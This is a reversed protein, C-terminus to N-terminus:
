VFKVEKLRVITVSNTVNGEYLEALAVSGIGERLIEGVTRDDCGQYRRVILANIREFKRSNWEIHASRLMALYAQGSNEEDGDGGSERDDPFEVDAMPAVTVANAARDLLELQMLTKGGGGATESEGATYRRAIIANIRDYTFGYFSVPDSKKMAAGADSKRM